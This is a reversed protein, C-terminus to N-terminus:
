VEYSQTINLKVLPANLKRGKNWGQPILDDKKIKKNEVGNTIWM